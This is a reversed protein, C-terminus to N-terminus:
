RANQAQQLSKNPRYSRQGGWGERQLSACGKGRGARHLAQEANEQQAQRGAGRRHSTKRVAAARGRPVAIGDPASAQAASRAEPPAEGTRAQTKVERGAPHVHEWPWDNSSGGSGRGGGGGGSTVGRCTCAHAFAGGEWM